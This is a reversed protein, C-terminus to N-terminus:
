LLPGELVNQLLSTAETTARDRETIAFATFLCTNIGHVCL